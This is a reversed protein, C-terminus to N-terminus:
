DRPHDRNILSVKPLIGGADLDKNSNNNNKLSVPFRVCVSFESINHAVDLAAAAARRAQINAVNGYYYRGSKRLLGCLSAILLSRLPLMSGSIAAAAAAM